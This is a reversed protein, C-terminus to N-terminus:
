PAPRASSGGRPRAEEGGPQQHRHQPHQEPQRRQGRHAPEHPDPPRGLARGAGGGVDPRRGPRPRPPARRPTRVVVVSPGPPALTPDLRAPPGPALAGRRAAPPRAPSGTPRQRARRWSASALRVPVPGGPGAAAGASAVAGAARRRTRGGGPRVPREGARAASLSPVGRWPRPSRREEVAGQAGGARRGARAPPRRRPPRPRHPAPGAGRRAGRSRPRPVQAPGPWCRARHDLRVGLTTRRHTGVPRGRRRGSSPRPPGVARRGAVVLDGLAHPDLRTVLVELRRM